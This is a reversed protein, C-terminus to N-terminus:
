EIEKMKAWTTIKLRMGADVKTLVDNWWEKALGKLSFIVMPVKHDEFIEFSEFCMEVSRVWGRFSAGINKGDYDLYKFM